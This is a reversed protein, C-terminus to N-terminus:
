VDMQFTANALVTQTSPDGQPAPDQHQDFIELISSAGGAVHRAMWAGAAKADGAELARVIGEFEEINQQIRYPRLRWMSKPFQGWLQVLLTHLRRNPCRDYLIQHFEQNLQEQTTDGNAEAHKKTDVIRRLSDLDDASIHPAALETALAELHQRLEFLEELDQRSVTAVRAGRYPERVLLGEAELKLIAERVPGRSVGTEAAIREEQLHEGPQLVGQFIAERILDAVRDTTARKEPLRRLAM